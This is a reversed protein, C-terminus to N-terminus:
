EVVISSRSVRVSMDTLWFMQASPSTVWSKSLSAIMAEPSPAIAAPPLTATPDNLSSEFLVSLETSISSENVVSM